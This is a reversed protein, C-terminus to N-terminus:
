KNVKKKLPCMEFFDINKNINYRVLANCKERLSISEQNGNCQKKLVGLFEAEFDTERVFRAIEHCYTWSSYDVRKSLDPLAFGYKDFITLIANKDDTALHRCNFIFDTLQKYDKDGIFRKISELDNNSKMTKYKESLLKMFDDSVNKNESLRISSFLDRADEYSVTEVIREAIAVKEEESIQLIFANLFSILIKEYTDNSFDFTKYKGLFANKYEEKETDDLFFPVDMLISIDELASDKKHYYRSFYDSYNGSLILIVLEEIKYSSELSENESIASLENAVHEGLLLVRREYSFDKFDDKKLQPKTDNSSFVCRMALTVYKFFLSKTIGIDDFFNTLGFKNIYDIIEDYFITAREITRWNSKADKILTEDILEEKGVIKPVLAKDAEVCVVVDFTKEKFENYDKGDLKSYKDNIVCVTKLGLKRLADVIGYITSFTLDKGKRELDDLVVMAHKYNTKELIPKVFFEGNVNMLFSSDLYESLIAFIDNKSNLGFLSLYIVNPKEESNVFKNIAYTKGCGWEGSILVTSYKNINEYLNKLFYTLQTALM